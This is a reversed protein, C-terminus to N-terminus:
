LWLVLHASCAHARALGLTTLIPFKYRAAIFSTSVWGRKNVACNTVNDDWFSALFVNCLVYELNSGLDGAYFSVQAPHLMEPQRSRFLGESSDSSTAASLNCYSNSYVLYMRDAEHLWDSTKDQEICLSDIWLYRVGFRRTAVVADKFTKPLDEIDVGRSLLGVTERNLQFHVHTGWRHSLTCYGGSLSADTSHVLRISSQADGAEGVDLLRTPYWGPDGGGNCAKHTQLCVSMWDTALSWSEESDTNNSQTLEYLRPPAGAILENAGGEPIMFPDIFMSSVPELNYMITANEKDSDVRDWDIYEDGFRVSFFYDGNVFMDPQLTIHTFSYSVTARNQENRANEPGHKLEELRLAAQEVKSFQSWVPRCIYCGKAASGALATSNYHHACVVWPKGDQESKDVFNNRHELVNICTQCLM